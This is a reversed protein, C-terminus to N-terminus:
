GGVGPIPVPDLEPSPPELVAVLEDLFVQARQAALSYLRARAAYTVPGHDQDEPSQFYLGIRAALDAREVRVFALLKERAARGYRAEFRSGGATVFSTYCQSHYQMDLLEAAQSWPPRTDTQALVADAAEQATLAPDAGAPVPLASLRELCDVYARAPMLADLASWRDLATADDAVPVAGAYGDPLGPPDYVGATYQIFVLLACGGFM